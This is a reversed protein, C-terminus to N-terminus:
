ALVFPWSQLKRRLEFVPQNDFGIGITHQGQSGQARIAFYKPKGFNLIGPRQQVSVMLEYILIGRAAAGVAFRAAFFNLAEHPDDFIIPRPMESDAVLAERFVPPGLVKIDM